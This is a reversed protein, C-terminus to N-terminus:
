SKVRQGSDESIQSINLYIRCANLFIRSFDTLCKISIKNIKEQYETSLKSRIWRGSILRINHGKTCRIDHTTGRTFVDCFQIIKIVWFCGCNEFMNISIRRERSWGLCAMSSLLIARLGKREPLRGMQSVGYKVACRWPCFGDSLRSFSFVCSEPSSVWSNQDYSTSNIPISNRLDPQRPPAFHPPAPAPARGPARSREPGPRVDENFTRSPLAHQKLCARTGRRSTRTIGGIRAHSM